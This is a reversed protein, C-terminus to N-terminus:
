PLSTYSKAHQGSPRVLRPYDHCTSRSHRLRTRALEDANEDDAEPNGVHASVSHAVGEKDTTQSVISSDVTYRGLFYTNAITKTRVLSRSVQPSRMRM